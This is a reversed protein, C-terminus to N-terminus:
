YVLQFVMCTDILFRGPTLLVGGVLISKVHPVSRDTNKFVVRKKANSGTAKCGNKFLHTRRIIRDDGVRVVINEVHRNAIAHDAHGSKKPKKPLNNFIGKCLPM